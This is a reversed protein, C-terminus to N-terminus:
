PFCGQHLGQSATCSVAMSSQVGKRPPDATGATSPSSPSQGSVAVRSVSANSQIHMTQELCRFYEAPHEQSYKKHAGLNAHLFRLADQALSKESLRPPSQPCLSSFFASDWGYCRFSAFSDGLTGRCETVSLFPHIAGLFASCQGMAQATCIAM